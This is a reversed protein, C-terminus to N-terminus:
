ALMAGEAVDRLASMALLEHPEAVDPFVTDRGVNVKQELWIAAVRAKGRLENPTRAHTAVLRDVLDDLPSWM